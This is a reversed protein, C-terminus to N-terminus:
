HWHHTRRGTVTSLHIRKTVRPKVSLQQGQVHQFDVSFEHMKSMSHVAHITRM